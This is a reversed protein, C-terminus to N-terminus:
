EQYEPLTNKLTNIIHLIPHKDSRVHTDIDRLAHEFQRKEKEVKRLDAVVSERIKVQHKVAKNTEMFSDLGDEVRDSLAEFTGWKHIIRQEGVPLHGLHIVSNHEKSTSMLYAYHNCDELFYNCERIRLIAIDKNFYNEGGEIIWTPVNEGKKFHHLKKM